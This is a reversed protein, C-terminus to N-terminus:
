SKVWRRQVVQTKNRAFLEGGLITSRVALNRWQVCMRLYDADVRGYFRAPPANLTQEPNM